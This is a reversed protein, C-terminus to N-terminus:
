LRLNDVISAIRHLNMVDDSVISVNKLEMAYREPFTIRMPRIARELTSRNEQLVAHHAGIM